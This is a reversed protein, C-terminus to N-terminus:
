DVSPIWYRARNPWNDGFYTWRKASDRRVILGDTPRGSYQVRVRYHGTDGRPLRIAITSDTRTFARVRDDLTVRQVNLKRLDLVLSDVRAMRRVTLTADGRIFSGTDPLDLVIAYDLVDIGPRYPHPEQADARAAALTLLLALPLRGTSGRPSTRPMRMLILTAKLIRLTAVM